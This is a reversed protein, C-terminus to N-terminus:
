SAAARSRHGPAIPGTLYRQIVPGVLERLEAADTSALPELGLVHRAFGLGVLQAAVLQVRLPADAVGLEQAVAGLISTEVLERLRAAAAEHTAASRVLVLMRPGVEADDWLRLFTEVMRAGIESRRGTVITAVAAAPDFPLEMAAVFLDQKSGFFQIVLAPDVDARLAIEKVTGAAFGREGFVARAAALIEQRTRTPGPRRGRPRSSSTTRSPM